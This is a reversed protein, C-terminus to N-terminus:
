DFHRWYQEDDDEVEEIQPTRTSVSQTSHNLAGTPNDQPGTSSCQAEAPDYQAPVTDEQVNIGMTQSMWRLVRENAWVRRIRPKGGTLNCWHSTRYYTSERSLARWRSHRWNDPERYPSTCQSPVAENLM